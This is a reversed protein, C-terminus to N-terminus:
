NASEQLLYYKATQAGAAITVAQGTTMVETSFYVNTGDVNLSYTTWYAGTTGNNDMTTYPLAINVIGSVLIFGFIAPTYTLGHAVSTESLQRDYNGVGPNALSIAGSLITGSAVVKLVNQASNFTFEDNSATVVDVGGGPATTRLGDKDLILVRTGTEDKIIKTVEQGKLELINQNVDNVVTDLSSGGGILKFSM